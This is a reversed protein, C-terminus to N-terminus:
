GEGAEAEVRVVRGPDQLNRCAARIWGASRATAAIRVLAVKGRFRGREGGLGGVAIERGGGILLGAGVAMGVQEGDLYLFAREGDYVGALHHWGAGPHRHAQVSVAGRQANVVFAPGPVAACLGGNHGCEVYKLAFCADAGATDCRLVQGHTLM